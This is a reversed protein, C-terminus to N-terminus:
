TKFHISQERYQEPPIGDMAYIYNTQAHMALSSALEKYEVDSVGHKPTVPALM